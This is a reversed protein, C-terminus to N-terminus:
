NEAAEGEDLSGGEREKDREGRARDGRRAYFACRPPSPHLRPPLPRLTILPPRMRAAATPVLVLALAVELGGKRKSPSPLLLYLLLLLDGVM